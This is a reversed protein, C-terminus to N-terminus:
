ERNGATEGGYVEVWDEYSYLLCQKETVLWQASLGPKTFTTKRNGQESWQTSLFLICITIGFM